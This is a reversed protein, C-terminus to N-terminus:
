GCCLNSHLEDNIEMPHLVNKCGVVADLQSMVAILFIQMRSDKCSVPRNQIDYTQQSSNVMDRAM